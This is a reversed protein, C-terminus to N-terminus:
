CPTALLDQTQIWNLENIIHIDDVIPLVQTLIHPCKKLHSSISPHCGDKNLDSTFPNGQLYSTLDFPSVAAGGSSYHRVLLVERTNDTTGTHGSTNSKIGHQTHTWLIHLGQLMVHGLCEKLRQGAYVQLRCCLTLHHCSLTFGTGALWSLLVQM